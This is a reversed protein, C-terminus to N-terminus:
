FDADDFALNFLNDAVDQNSPKFSSDESDSDSSDHPAFFTDAPNNEDSNEEGGVIDRLNEVLEFLVQKAPELGQKRYKSKRELFQAKAAAIRAPDHKKRCNTLQHGNKGCNWCTKDRHSGPFLRNMVQKGYRPQTFLISPKSGKSADPSEEDVAEQTEEHFQLANALKTYLKQFETTDTIEVLSQKAWTEKLLAKRLFDVRHSEHRYAAPCKQARNAIFAAISSLGKAKSGEKAVFSQFNLTSLQNKVRAQVDPSNFHHLMAKKAEMYTSATSKINTIYYRLAEAKFLNHVYKCKQQESMGYDDAITEYNVLYEFLDEDDAGGYKNEKDKFGQAIDHHVRNSNNTELGTKGLDSDQTNSHSYPHTYKTTSRTVQTFKPVVVEQDDNAPRIRHELDNLKSEFQSEQNELKKSLLEISKQLDIFLKANSEMTTNNSPSHPTELKPNEDNNSENKNNEQKSNPTFTEEITGNNLFEQIRRLAEELESKLQEGPYIMYALKIATRTNTALKAAPDPEIGMGTLHTRFKKQLEVNELFKDVFLKRAPYKTQIEKLANDETIIKEISQMEFLHATDLMFKRQDENLAIIDGYWGKIMTEDSTM